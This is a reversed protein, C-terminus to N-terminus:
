FLRVRDGRNHYNLLDELMRLYSDTDSCKRFKDPALRIKRFLVFPDLNEDLVIDIARIFSRDNAFDAYKGCIAAVRGVREARERHNVEMQGNEFLKKNNRRSATTGHQVLSIAVNWSLQATGQKIWYDLYDSYGWNKTNINLSIADEITLGEWMIYYIERGIERAATLRHQGDIVEMQENVLIPQAHLLNNKAISSILNQVHERNVQRNKPHFRFQDLNQSRYFAGAVRDEDRSKPKPKSKDEGNTLQRIQDAADKKSFRITGADTELIVEGDMVYQDKVARFKGKHRITQGKINPIRKM